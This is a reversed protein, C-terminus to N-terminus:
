QMSASKLGSFGSGGILFHGEDCFFAGTATISSSLLGCCFYETNGGM